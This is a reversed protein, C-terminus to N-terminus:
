FISEVITWGLSGVTTNHYKYSSYPTLPLQQFAAADAFGVGAHTVAFASLGPACQVPLEVSQLTDKEVHKLPDLDGPSQAPEGRSSPEAKEQM